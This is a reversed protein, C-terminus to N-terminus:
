GHKGLGNVSLDMKLDHIIFKHNLDVQNLNYVPKTCLFLILTM